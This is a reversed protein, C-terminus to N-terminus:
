GGRVRIGSHSREPEPLRVIFTAGADANNTAELTGGHEGVIQRSLPLGLGTGLGVPKTTFFSDWIRTSIADPIGPGSDSIRLDVWGDTLEVAVDIRQAGPQHRCADIANILLNLMVQGM